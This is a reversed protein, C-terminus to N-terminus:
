LIYQTGISQYSQPQYYIIPPPDNSLSHFPSLALACSLFPCEATTSCQGRTHAAVRPHLHLCCPWRGPPPVAMCQQGQAGIAGEQKPPFSRRADSVVGPDEAAQGGGGGGNPAHWSHHPPLRQFSASSHWRRPLPMCSCTRPVLLAYLCVCLAKCYWMGNPQCM